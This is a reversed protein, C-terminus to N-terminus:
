LDNGAASRGVTADGPRPGPQLDWGPALTITWGAGRVVSGDRTYPGPLTLRQRDPSLLVDDAELSGWDGAVRYQQVVTGAGPIPTLGATVFSANRGAPVVVVPGDVFRRRLAAVRAERERERAAEADALAAGDYRAAAEAPDPSARLGAAAVLMAVPDVDGTMRRPWGPSVDDLLLGYATGLPYPFTRVLTPSAPAEDLQARADAVAAARDVFGAVTGTYQALGENIILRRETEAAEPFRAHRAARFALADAVAARRADGASALAADLARWELQLWYRGERTDLHANDADQVFLGLDPQVRHFLEHLWLRARRGPDEPILSWVVTTWRETGWRMAANAFGIARPRPAEPAPQNTAITGTAADGIVIPGCLSVGWIRGGERACLAAAEAFYAEARAPDVQASASPAAALVALVSWLAVRPAFAHATM